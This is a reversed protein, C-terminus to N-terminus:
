FNFNSAGFIGILGICILYFAVIYTLLRPIILILIGTIISLLPALGLTINM